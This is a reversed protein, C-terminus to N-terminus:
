NVRANVNEIILETTPKEWEATVFNQIENKIFNFRGTILDEWM